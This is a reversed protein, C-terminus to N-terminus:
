DYYDLQGREIDANEHTLNIDIPVCFRKVMETALEEWLNLHQRGSVEILWYQCDVRDFWLVGIFPRKANKVTGIFDRKGKYIDPGLLIGVSSVYESIWDGRRAVGWRDSLQFDRKKGEEILWLVARVEPTDRYDKVSVLPKSM